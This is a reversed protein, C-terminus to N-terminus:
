SEAVPVTNTESSLLIKFRRKLIRNQASALLALVPIAVVAFTYFTLTLARSMHVASVGKHIFVLYLVLLFIIALHRHMRPLIKKQPLGDRLYVNRNALDFVEVEAGHQRAWVNLKKESVRLVGALCSVKYSMASVYAVGLFLVAACLLYAENPLDGKVIFTLLAILITGFLTMLKDQAKKIECYASRASEYEALLLKETDM